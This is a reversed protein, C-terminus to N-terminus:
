QLLNSPARSSEERTDYVQINTGSFAKTGAYKVGNLFYVNGYYEKGGVYGNHNMGVLDYVQILDKQTFKLETIPTQPDRVISFFPIFKANFGTATVVSIHPLQTFNGGSDVSVSNIKGFPDCKYSLVTGNNPTITLQDIGCNYGIGPDQVIVDTLTLLVPYQSGSSSQPPPPLYGTGSDNVIVKIVVGSKDGTGLITELVAGSGNKCPDIVQVQPPTKYGYGGSILDVAILNGNNDVVPNALAGVGHGGFFKLAPPGCKRDSTDCSDTRELNKPTLTNVEVITLFEVKEDGNIFIFQTGPNLEAYENAESLSVDKVYGDEQHIYGVTILDFSAPVIPM